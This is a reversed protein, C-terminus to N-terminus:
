MEVIGDVVVVPVCPRRYHHRNQVLLYPLHIFTTASTRRQHVRSWPAVVSSRSTSAQSENDDDVDNVILQVADTDVKKKVYMTQPKNTVSGSHRRRRSRDSVFPPLPASETRASLLFHM